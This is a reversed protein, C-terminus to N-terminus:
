KEEEIKEFVFWNNNKDYTVFFLTKDPYNKFFTSHNLNYAGKNRKVFSLVATTTTTTSSPVAIFINQADDKITFLDFAQLDKMIENPLFKHFHFLSYTHVYKQKGTKTNRVQLIAKQKSDSLNQLYQMRRNNNMMRREEKVPILDEKNFIREM